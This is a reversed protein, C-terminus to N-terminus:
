YAQAGSVPPKVATGIYRFASIKSGEGYETDLRELRLDSRTLYADIQRDLNCGGCVRAHLPRLRRQWRAVGPEPSRGHELFHLRGGPRLVRTLERLALALDPITCMTFTSLAADASADALDLRQGDLGGRQVTADAAAIRPQAMEWARESPEIATVSTVAAPYHRVNLGSGFGIEVVDGRLGECVVARVAAIAEDGLVRDTIGPLMRDTWWGM